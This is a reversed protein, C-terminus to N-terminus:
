VCQFSHTSAVISLILIGVLTYAMLIIHAPPSPWDTM